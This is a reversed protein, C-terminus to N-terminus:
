FERTTETPEDNFSTFNGKFRDLTQIFSDASYNEEDGDAVEGEHKGTLISKLTPILPLTHNQYSDAKWHWSELM